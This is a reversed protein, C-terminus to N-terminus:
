LQILRIHKDAKLHRDYNAKILNAKKSDASLLAAMLAACISCDEIDCDVRVIRM